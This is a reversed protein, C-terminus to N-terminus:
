TQLMFIRRSFNQWYRQWYVNETKLGSECKHLLRLFLLLRLRLRLCQTFMHSALSAPFCANICSYWFGSECKHLLRLLLLLRLRLRLCQTFMHSALSATFCANVCSYWFKKIDQKVRQTLILKTWVQKMIKYHSCTNRWM